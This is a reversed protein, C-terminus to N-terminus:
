FEIVNKQRNKLYREIDGASLCMSRVGGTPSPPEVTYPIGKLRSGIRVSYKGGKVIGKAIWAKKGADKDETFDIGYIRQPTHM